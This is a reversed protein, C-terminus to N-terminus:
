EVIEGYYDYAEAKLIKIRIFDGIKIHNFQYSTYTNPLRKSSTTNISIQTFQNNSTPTPLNPQTYESLTTDLPSLITQFPSSQDNTYSSKTKKIVYNLPIHVLNDIEYCDEALRGLIKNKKVMDVIIEYVKNIKEQNRQYLLLQQATMLKDLRNKIIKKPVKPSLTYAITGEENSYPFAGLKDIPFEEIFDLLEQFDDKSETPFGVIFTSRITSNPFRKRIFSVIDIIQKKTTKRNMLQLIRDSVHQFPIDFYPLVKPISFLNELMDFTLHKPHLYMIRIWRINTLYKSIESLLKYLLNKYIKNYYLTDQAIVYLEKVGKKHLTYAEQLLSDYNFPTYQGKISPITCYSCKNNCGEAIKLFGLHPPIIIQTDIYNNYNQYNYEINSKIFIDINNDNYFEFWYDVEPIEIALEKKYRKVLCGFVIIKIHPNKQKLHILKFIEKISERKADLIFGCTNLFIFDAESPENVWKYGNILLKQILKESDVLNKHCGLSILHFKM